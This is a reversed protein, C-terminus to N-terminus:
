QTAQVYTKHKHLTVHWSRISLQFRGTHQAEQLQLSILQEQDRNKERGEERKTKEEAKNQAVTSVDSRYTSLGNRHQILGM